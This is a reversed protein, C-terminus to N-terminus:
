CVFYTDHFDIYGPVFNLGSVQSFKVTAAPDYIYIAVGDSIAIQPKNNEAIYVVGTVSLLTGIPIITVDSTTQSQQDFFIDALYVTSDVVIVMKNLKTSTHIGRGEEGLNSIAKQYGAYPVLWNDSIFMNYTKENSIKPYRGFTSSGVINLPEPKFNQGRTIM